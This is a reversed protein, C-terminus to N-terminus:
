DFCNGDHSPSHIRFLSAGRMRRAETEGMEPSQRLSLSVHATCTAPKFLMEVVSRPNMTGHSTRVLSCILPHTPSPQPQCLGLRHYGIMVGVQVSRTSM